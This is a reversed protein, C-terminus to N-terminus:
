AAAAVLFATVIVVFTLLIAEATVTSRLEARLEPSEPNAELAPLLRFHNYAGGIAALAVASTKLLLIQGWTTSTLEGFSDLVLLAMVGGAVVVSALSIAAIKSFRVVLEVVRMPRGSRYRWWMIAAMSVVGGVWVAGAAVHVSSVLAHLPGFGKSVTHGDFWFSALILVTGLLAPWSRADPIWRVLQREDQASEVGPMDDVVAASLARPPERNLAPRGVRSRALTPSVGVVIAAGGLVRLMTAVGPNTSWASLLSEDGIRAVGIYEVIAGVIIVGGLVRVALLVGLIEDRGGRLTTAAFALAGLGLVVGLLSVVRGITAATDGPAADDVTLFEELTPAGSATEGPPVAAAQEATLPATSTAVSTPATSPAVSTPTTSTEPPQTTPAAATVLFSFAGEIPHADAAHVNWRIGIQGGALPPDFNASFLKNDVTTVSTPEQLEGAATLAVFEDGVPTAEGTFLLTVIGVPGDVTAGNSPTSSDFGTHAAVRGCPLTTALAVVVLAVATAIRRAVSPRARVTTSAAPSM